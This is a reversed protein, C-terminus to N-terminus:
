RVRLYASITVITVQQAASENVTVDSGPKLIVPNREQSFPPDINGITDVDTNFFSAGTQEDEFDLYDGSSGATTVNGTISNVRLEGHATACGIDWYEGKTHATTAGFTVLLGNAIVQAAGTMAIEDSWENLSYPHKTWRFKDTGAATTVKIRVGMDAGGVFTGSATLDDLGSGTFVAAGVNAEPVCMAIWHWEDLLTHGTKAAFTITVGETLTIAGGITLPVDETWTIGGDSSWDMKDTTAKTTIKAVFNLPTHGTFTGQVTADDLVGAGQYLLDGVYRFFEAVDATVSRTHTINGYEFLLGSM